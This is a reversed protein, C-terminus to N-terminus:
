KKNKATKQREKETEKKTHYDNNNKQEKTPKAAKRRGRSTSSSFLHTFAARKFSSIPKKSVRNDDLSTFSEKRKERGMKGMKMSKGGRELLLATDASRHLRGRGQVLNAKQKINRDNEQGKERREETTVKNRRTKHHMVNSISGVPFFLSLLTKNSNHTCAHIREAM